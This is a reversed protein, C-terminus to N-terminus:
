DRTKCIPALPNPPPEQDQREMAAHGVGLAHVPHIFGLEPQSRPFKGADEIPRQRPQPAQLRASPAERFRPGAALGQGGMPALGVRTPREQLLMIHDTGLSRRPRRLQQVLVIHGPTVFIPVFVRQRSLGETLLDPPYEPQRFRTRLTT